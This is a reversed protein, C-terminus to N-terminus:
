MLLPFLCHEVYLPLPLWWTVPLLLFAAAYFCYFMFAIMGAAILTRVRGAAFALGVVWGLICALYYFKANASTFLISGFGISFARELVASFHVRATYQTLTYAYSLAGSGILLVLSLALAAGRVVIAKINLPSLTVVAFPVAWSMACVVSWLPDCSLSYFILAAIAAGTLLVSRARSSDLRALVGLAVMYPAYVAALGPLLVFSATFGLLPGIPGFWLLCLQAAVVSPIVPLDFCRAMVYSGIAICSLAILGAIDTAFKGDPFALPWHVPNAWVNLPLLQSGLGQTPNINTVDFFAAFRYGTRVVAEAMRGDGAAFFTGNGTTMLRTELM